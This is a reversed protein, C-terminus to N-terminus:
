EKQKLTQIDVKIEKLSEKREKVKDKLPQSNPYLRLQSQQFNLESEADRKQYKLNQLQNAVFLKRNVKEQRVQDKDYTAANVFRDEVLFVSGAISSVLAVVGVTAKQVTTIKKKATM